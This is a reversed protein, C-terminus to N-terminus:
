AAPRHENAVKPAPRPPVVLDRSLRERIAQRMYESSTVDVLEAAEKIRAVDRPTLAVPWRKTYRKWRKAPM